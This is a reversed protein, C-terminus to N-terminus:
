QNIDEESFVEATFSFIETDDDNRMEPTMGAKLFTQDIFTERDWGQETAVQPLLLGSDYGNKVYLGDRGTKIQDTNEVKKLPSLISIEISIQDIEEKALPIFRPDSFAAALSMHRVTESLPRDSVINGICGRLNGAKRLTVFAGCLEGEMDVAPESAGIGLKWAINERAYVLLSEREKKNLLAMM